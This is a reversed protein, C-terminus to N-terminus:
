RRRCSNVPPRPNGLPQRVADTLQELRELRESSLHPSAPGVM